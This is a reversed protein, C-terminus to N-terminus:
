SWPCRRRESGMPDSGTEAGAFQTRGWGPGAPAYCLGHNDDDFRTDFRPAGCVLQAIIAGAVRDFMEEANFSACIAFFAVTFFFAAAFFFAAGFFTTFFAAGFFTTL